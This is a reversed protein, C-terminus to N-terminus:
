LYRYAAMIILIPVWIIATSVIIGITYLVVSIFGMIIVAFCIAAMEFIDKM